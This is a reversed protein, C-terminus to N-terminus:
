LLSHCKTVHTCAFLGSCVSFGIRSLRQQLSPPRSLASAQQVRHKRWGPMWVHATVLRIKTIAPPMARPSTCGLCVLRIYLVPGRQLGHCRPSTSVLADHRRVPQWARGGSVEMYPRRMARESADVSRVHGGDAAGLLARKACSSKAGLYVSQM